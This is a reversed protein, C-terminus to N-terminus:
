IYHQLNQDYYALTRQLTQRLDRSPRWGSLTHFKSFSSYYDGIDIRKREEPYEMIRLEGNGHIETMLAALEKLSIKEESGLNFIEGVAGEHIAAIMIADVVDEVDNFDRLQQGGWVEIPQKELLMRVWVGLFTQRADKIRMRPGITNTLRLTCSRIGYVRGYLQHYIEAAYKHIGNIDVPNIRHFEDVPLYDPRGYIQRTSAYVIRIEPNHRRCAELLNLQAACNSSLDNLPDNMSDMHSTQGALSFLFETQEMLPALSASERIDVINLNIKDDYGKLNYLNGGQEPILSDVVTIHAGLELLRIALTSGIFGAGGTILVNKSEWQDPNFIPSLLNKQPDETM